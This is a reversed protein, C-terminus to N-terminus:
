HSTHLQPVEAPTKMNRLTLVIGGAIFPIVSCVLFAQRSGLIDILYGILPASFIQGIANGTYSFGIGQPRGSAAMSSLTHQAPVAFYRTVGYLILVLLLLAPPFQGVALLITVLGSGIMSVAMITAKDLKDALVGGLLSSASGVAHMISSLTGAWAISEGYAESLFLPIYNLLAGLSFFSISSVLIMLPKTMKFKERNVPGSSARRSTQKPLDLDQVIRWFAIVISLGVVPVIQLATRWGYASALFAVAATGVASGFFGGVQHYSVYRGRRGDSARQVVMAYTSPHFPVESLAFAGVVLLLFGFSPTLSYLFVSLTCLSMSLVALRKGGFRDVLYGAPGQLISIIGTLSGILGIQFTSIGFEARLLFYVPPLANIYVHQVSHLLALIGIDLSRPKAM